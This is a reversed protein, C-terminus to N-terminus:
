FAVRIGLGGDVDFDTDPTVDLTPAVEAFLSLPATEFFYNLGLPLRAGLRDDGSTFEGRGGVGWYFSLDGDEVDFLGFSHRVFDAHLHVVDNHDLSWAAAVNVATTEGTWAAFSIGTPEGVVAGIEGGTRAKAATAALGLAVALGLAGIWPGRTRKPLKTSTPREIRRSEDPTRM